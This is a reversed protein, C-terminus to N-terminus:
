PGSRAFFTRAEMSDTEIQKKLEDLGSFKREERLLRLFEVDLDQGYLDREFDLLHVELRIMQGADVTPRVGLNALGPRSVGDATRARVLYVGCPPLARGETGVN